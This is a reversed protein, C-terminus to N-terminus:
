TGARAVKRDELFEEIIMHQDELWSIATELDRVLRPLNEINQPPDNGPDIVLDPEDVLHSVKAHLEYIGIRDRDTM